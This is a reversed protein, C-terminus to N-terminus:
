VAVAESKRRWSAETKMKKKAHIRVLAQIEGSCVDTCCHTGNGQWASVITSLRAIISQMSGAQTSTQSSGFLLGPVPTHNRALAGWWFCGQSIHHWASFPICLPALRPRSYRKVVGWQLINPHFGPQKLCAAESVAKAHMKGIRHGGETRDGLWYFAARPWRHTQRHTYTYTHVCKTM